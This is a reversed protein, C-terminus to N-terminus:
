KIEHSVSSRVSWYIRRMRKKKSGERSSIYRLFHYCCRSNAGVRLKMRQKALVSRKVPYSSQFSVFDEQRCFKVRSSGCRIKRPNTRAHSVVM